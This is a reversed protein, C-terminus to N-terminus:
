FHPYKSFKIIKDYYNSIINFFECYNHQLAQKKYMSNSLNEKVKPYKIYFKWEKRDQFNNWMLISM